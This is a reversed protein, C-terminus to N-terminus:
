NNETNAFQINNINNNIIIDNIKSIVVQFQNVFTIKCSRKTMFYCLIKGSSKRVTALINWLYLTMCQCKYSIPVGLLFLPLKCKFFFFFSCHKITGSLQIWQKSYIKNQIIVQNNVPMKRTISKKGTQTQFKNFFCQWIDYTNCAQTVSDHAM